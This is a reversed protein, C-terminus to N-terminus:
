PTFSLLLFRGTASSPFPLNVHTGDRVGGGFGPLGCAWACTYASLCRAWPASNPSSQDERSVWGSCMGGVGLVMGVAVAKPPERQAGLFRAWRKCAGHGGHIECYLERPAGPFGPGMKVQRRRAAVARPPEWWVLDGAPMQSDLFQRARRRGGGAVGALGRGKRVQWELLHSRPELLGWCISAEPEDWLLHAGALWPWEFASLGHHADVLAEAWGSAQQGQPGTLRAHILHNGELLTHKWVQAQKKLLGLLEPRREVCNRHLNFSRKKLRM